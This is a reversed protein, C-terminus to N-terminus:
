GVRLPEADDVGTRRGTTGVEVVGGVAVVCEVPDRLITPILLRGGETDEDENM